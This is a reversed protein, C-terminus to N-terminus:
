PTQPASYAGGAPDPASGPRQRTEHVKFESIVASTLSTRDNHYAPFHKLRFCMLLNCIEVLVQDPGTIPHVRCPEFTTPDPGWTRASISAESRAAIDQFGYLTRVRNSYLVSLLYHGISYYWLGQTVQHIARRTHTALISTLYMVTFSPRTDDCVWIWCRSIGVILKSM